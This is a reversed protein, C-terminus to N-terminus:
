WFGATLGAAVSSGLRPNLCLYFTLSATIFLPVLWTVILSSLVAPPSGWWVALSAGVGLLIDYTVVVVLRGLTMHVPSVPCSMEMEWAGTNAARFAYAVGFVALLPTLAALCSVADTDTVALFLVGAAVTAASALWFWTKFLGTQASAAQLVTSPRPALPSLEDTRRRGERELVARFAGATPFGEVFGALDRTEAPTPGAVRWRMLERVVRSQVRDSRPGAELRLPRAPGDRLRMETM